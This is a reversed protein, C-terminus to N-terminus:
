PVSSGHAARETRSVESFLDRTLRWPMASRSYLLGHTGIRTVKPLCRQTAKFNYRVRVCLLVSPKQRCSFAGGVWAIGPRMHM